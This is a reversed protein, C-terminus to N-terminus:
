RSGARRAMPLWGESRGRGEDDDDDDLAGGSKGRGGGAEGVAAADGVGEREDVPPEPVPSSASKLGKVGKSGRNEVVGKGKGVGVSWFNSLTGCNGGVLAKRKWAEGVGERAEAAEM